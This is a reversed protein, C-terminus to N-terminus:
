NFKSINKVGYKAVKKYESGEQTYVYDIGGKKVKDYKIPLAVSGDYNYYGWKKDKSTLIFLGELIVEDFIAPVLENGENDLLGVKGNLYTKYYEEKEYTSIENDVFEQDVSDYLFEIYNM